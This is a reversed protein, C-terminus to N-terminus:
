KSSKNSIEKALLVLLSGKPLKEGEKVSIKKVVADFPATIINKMKMAEYILLKDGKNVKDGKKVLITNVTGPIISLIENKNPEQWTKREIFKKTFMTRYVRGEEFIQIKDKYEITEEPIIVADGFDSNITNIKNEEM